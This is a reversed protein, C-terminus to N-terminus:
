HSGHGSNGGHGNGDLKLQGRIEGGPSTASHVNVYAVGNRLANLVGAFEGATIGQSTITLVQGPGITGTVTNGRPGGCPPTVAAVAPPAPNAETQCLWIAIAGNVSTQGIHIHSQRVDGRLDEYDLTYRIESGDPNITAEFTGSAPTIVAPPENLGSLRTKLKRGDDRDGSRDAMLDQAGVLLLALVTAVLMGGLRKM